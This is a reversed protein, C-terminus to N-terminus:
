LMTMKRWVKTSLNLNGSTYEYNLKFYENNWKPNQSIEAPIKYLIKGSYVVKRNLRILGIDDNHNRVSYSEHVIVEEPYYDEAQEACDRYQKNIICDIDTTVDYEGM